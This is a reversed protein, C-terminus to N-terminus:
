RGTTPPFPLKIQGAREMELAGPPIYSPLVPRSIDIAPGAEYGSPQGTFLGQQGPTSSPQAYDAREGFLKSYAERQAMEQEAMGPSLPKPAGPLAGRQKLSYEPRRFITELGAREGEPVAKLLRSRLNALNNRVTSEATGVAKAISASDQGEAMLEAIQRQKATLTPILEPARRWLGRVGEEVQETVWPQTTELPAGSPGAVGQTMKGPILEQALQGRRSPQLPEFLALYAGLHDRIAKIAERAPKELLGPQEYLLSMGEQVIDDTSIPAKAAEIARSSAPLGAETEIRSALGRIKPERAVALVAQLFDQAGQPLGQAIAQASRALSQLYSTVGEPVKELTKGASLLLDATVPPIKRPFPPM